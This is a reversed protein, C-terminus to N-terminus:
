SLGNADNGRAERMLDVLEGFVQLLVKGIDSYDAARCRVKHLKDCGPFCVGSFREESGLLGYLWQLGAGDARKDYAARVKVEDHRHKFLDAAFIDGDDRRGGKGNFVEAM